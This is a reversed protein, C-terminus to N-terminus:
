QESDNAQATQGGFMESMGFYENDAIAIETAIETLNEENAINIERQIKELYLSINKNVRYDNKSYDNKLGEYTAKLMGNCLLFEEFWDINNSNIEDLLTRISYKSKFEDIRKISGVLVLDKKTLGYHSPNKVQEIANSLTLTNKIASPLKLWWKKIVNKVKPNAKIANKLFYRYIFFTEDAFFLFNEDYKIANILFDPDSNLGLNIRSCAKLVESIPTKLKTKSAFISNLCEIALTKNSIQTFEVFSFKGTLEFKRKFNLCLEKQKQLKQQELIQQIEKKSM